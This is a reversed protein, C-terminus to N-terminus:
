VVTGTTIDFLRTTIMMNKCKISHYSASVQFVQSQREIICYNVIFELQKVIDSFSSLITCVSRHDESSLERTVFLRWNTKISTDSLSKDLMPVESLWCSDRLTNVSEPFSCKWSVLASSSFRLLLDRSVKSHSRQPTRFTLLKERRGFRFDILKIEFLSRVSGGFRNRYATISFINRDWLRSNEYPWFAMRSSDSVKFVNLQLLQLKVTM